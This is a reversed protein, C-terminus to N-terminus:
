YRVNKMKIWFVEVKLTEVLTAPEGSEFLVEMKIEYEGTTLSKSWELSDRASVEEEGDIYWKLSGSNSNIGEIEARFNVVDKTCITTNQLDQYHVNNVYFAANNGCSEIILNGTKSIITDNAFRVWMSIEYAGVAFTKSWQLQDFPLIEIEGNVFWKITDMAVSMNDLEARFSVNGVCFTTDKLDQFHVNNAYFAANLDRMASYALYYYSTVTAYGGVTGYGTGYGLIIMGNSNSFIYSSTNDTLPVSYFSMGATYNDHWTGGSLDTPLADGISVKTNNKTATPTVILAYHKIMQYYQPIFPAILAKSVMQKNGPVWTQSPTPFFGSPTLISNIMYSCVGVPKDSQIYCGKNALNIDLEVFQGAQLNLSNQAGPVGIRIAGGIQTIKTDNQTAVIRVIEQELVTVPVFFTNGWTIVPPFQQM